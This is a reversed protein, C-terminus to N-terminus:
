RCSEDESQNKLWKIYEPDNLFATGVNAQAIDKKYSDVERQMKMLANFRKMEAKIYENETCM